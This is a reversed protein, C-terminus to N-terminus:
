LVNVGAGIVAVSARSKREQETFLRGSAVPVSSIELFNGWVGLILPNIATRSNATIKPIDATPGYSGRIKQPSVAQVSELAAVALIDEYTFDKRQREEATPEDFSPGIRDQKTFYVVNPANKETVDAVRQSLGTLIAGVLAVVASESL